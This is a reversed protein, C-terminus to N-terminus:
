YARLWACIVLRTTLLFPSADDCCVIYYGWLSRNRRDNQRQYIKCLHHKEATGRPRDCIWIFDQNSDQRDVNRGVEKRDEHDGSISWDTKACDFFTGSFPLDHVGVIVAFPFNTLLYEHNVQLFQSRFSWQRSRVRPIPVSRILFLHFCRLRKQLLLKDTRFRM